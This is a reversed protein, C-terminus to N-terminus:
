TLMEHQGNVMKESLMAADIKNNNCFEIMQKKQINIESDM